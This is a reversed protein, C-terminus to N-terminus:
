GRPPTLLVRVGVLNPVNRGAAHVRLCFELLPELLAWRKTALAAALMALADVKIDHVTEFYEQSFLGWLATAACDASRYCAVSNILVVAFASAARAKHETAARGPLALGAPVGTSHATPLAM